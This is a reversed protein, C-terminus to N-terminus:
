TSLLMDVVANPENKYAWEFYYLAKGYAKSKAASRALFFPSLPFQRGIKLITEQYTRDKILKEFVSLIDYIFEACCDPDLLARKVKLVFKDFTQDGIHEIAYTVVAEIFVRSTFRYSHQALHGASKIVENRSSLVAEKVIAMKNQDWDAKSTVMGENFLQLFAAREPLHTQTSRINNFHAYSSRPNNQRSVRSQYREISEKVRDGPINSPQMHVRCRQQILTPNRPDNEQRVQVRM